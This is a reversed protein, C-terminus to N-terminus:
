ARGRAPRAPFRAEFARLIELQREDMYREVGSALEAPVGFYAEAMSGAIAAITDSDGGVSVANRVADEFGNAELFAEIAVPVSGQCSVDFTYGPRIQELTFDLEYYKACVFARISDLNEGARALWIVSAVAEAGKMGEPHDHTVRTVAAALAQAQELSQAAFGCPGVRMASGNGYSNYPQPDDAGIWRMFNGGYGADPYARGLERMWHVAQGSLEACGNGEDYNGECSLIAQAVALSMVSDDTVRCRHGFLVFDKSKHNRWEFRSGAVDGIIAGRM